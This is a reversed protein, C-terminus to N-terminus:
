KGSFEARRNQSWAAEDHGSVAPREKGFSITKLKSEDVGMTALYKKVAHARREGLHLNYEETGREDCHGAITITGKIKEKKLCEANKELMSRAEGTLNSENFEFRITGLSCPGEVAAVECKQDANCHKGASCDADSNCEPPPTCRGAKCQLGKACDADAACEAVCKENKCKFGSGCDGDASCEVKPVCANNKCAFNAKCDSDKGCAQCSGNVCVGTHGDRNCHDDNNCKPWTPTCGSLALAAVFLGPLLLRYPM